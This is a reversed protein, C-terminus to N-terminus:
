RRRVRQRQQVFSPFFSFSLLLVALSIMYVCLCLSIPALSLPLIVLKLISPSLTSCHMCRSAYFHVQSDVSECAESEVTTFLVKKRLTFPLFLPLRRLSSILSLDGLSLSHTPHLSLAHMCVQSNPIRM